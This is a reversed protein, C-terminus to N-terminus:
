DDKGDKGGKGHKGKGPPPPPPAVPTQAVAAPSSGPRSTAPRASSARPPAASPSPSPTIAASPATPVTPSAVAPALTPAPSRVPDGGAILLAGGLAGAGVVAVVVVPLLARRRRRRRLAAAARPAGAGPAFVATAAAIPAAGGSAANGRGVPGAALVATRETAAPGPVPRAETAALRHAVTAAAPRAAPDRATADHLLARWPAPVGPPIEPQRTLRALAAEVGSGSYAPSGTLAELLVLGLAYVDAPPGVPDGTVQEPALYAATGVTMGTRTLRTSDLATAIGFDALHPSGAADLLVNGPKVDRHTVGAAHVAALGEALVAGLRATDVPDLRGDDRLRERLSPGDVLQMVLYARDADTGADYLTVVAPHHLRALVRTESRFREADDPDVGGVLKVAVERDLVTDHARHVTAMGGTGLLPGLAYRGGLLEADSM